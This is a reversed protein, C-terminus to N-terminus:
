LLSILQNQDWMGSIKKGNFTLTGEGSAQGRVFRGIYTTEPLYISGLGEALGYSFDGDYTWNNYTLKGRGHFKGNMWM